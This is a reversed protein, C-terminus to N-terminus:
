IEFPTHLTHLVIITSQKIKRLFRYHLKSKLCAQCFEFEPKEVRWALIFALRPHVSYSRASPNIKFQTLRHTYCVSTRATHVVVFNQERLELKIFSTSLFKLRTFSGTSVFVSFTVFSPNPSEAPAAIQEAEDPCASERPAGDLWMAWGCLLHISEDPPENSDKGM